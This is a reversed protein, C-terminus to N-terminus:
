TTQVAILLGSRLGNHVRQAFVCSCYLLCHWDVEVICLFDPSKLLLIYIKELFTCFDTEFAIILRRFCLVRM